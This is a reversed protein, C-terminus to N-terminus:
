IDPQCAPCDGIDERAYPSYLSQMVSQGEPWGYRMRLYQWVKQARTLPSSLQTTQQDSLQTTQQDSLQTTQQDSVQQQPLAAVAVNPSSEQQLVDDTLWAGAELILGALEMEPAPTALPPSDDANEAASKDKRTRGPAASTAASTPEPTAPTAPVTPEPTAGAPPQAPMLVAAPPLAPGESPPQAPLMASDGGSLRPPKTPPKAKVPLLVAPDGRTFRLAALNKFVPAYLVESALLTLCLDQKVGPPTATLNFVGVQRGTMKRQVCVCVCVFVCVHRSAPVAPTAAANNNSAARGTHPLFCATCVYVYLSHTAVSYGASV